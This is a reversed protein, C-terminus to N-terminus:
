RAKKILEEMLRRNELISRNLKDLLALTYSDPDSSRIASQLSKFDRKISNLNQEYKPDTM